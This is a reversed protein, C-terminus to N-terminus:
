SAGRRRRRLSVGIGIAAVVLPLSAPEPVASPYHFAVYDLLTNPDLPSGSWGLGPVYSFESASFSYGPLESLLTGVSLVDGLSHRSIFATGADLLAAANVGYFVETLGSSPDPFFDPLGLPHTAFYGHDALWRGFSPMMNGGADFAAIQLTGPDTKEVTRQNVDSVKQGDIIGPVSFDVSTGGSPVTKSYQVVSGNSNKIPLGDHTPTVIVLSNAAATEPFNMAPNAATSSSSDPGAALNWGFTTTIATQMAQTFVATATPHSLGMNRISWQFGTGLVSYTKNGYDSILFTDFDANATPTDLYHLKTGGPPAEVDLETMTGPPIFTPPSFFGGQLPIEGHPGLPAKPDRPPPRTEDLFWPRDDAWLTPDPPGGNKPPDIRSAGNPGTVWQFWNLHDQGLAAELQKLTMTSTDANKRTVTFNGDMGSATRDVEITGINPIDITLAVAARTGPSVGVL